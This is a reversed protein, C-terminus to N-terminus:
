VQIKISGYHFQFLSNDLTISLPEGIKISGYHFQFLRSKEVKSM